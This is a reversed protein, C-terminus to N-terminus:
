LILAKDFETSSNHYPKKIQQFKGDINKPFYSKNECLAYPLIYVFFTILFQDGKTREASLSPNSGGTGRLVATKLVATISWEVVKGFKKTLLSQKRFRHLPVAKKQNHLSKPSIKKRLFHM